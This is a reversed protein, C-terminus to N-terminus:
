QVLTFEKLTDKWLILFCEYILLAFLRELQIKHLREVIILIVKKNRHRLSIGLFDEMDHVIIHVYPVFIIAYIVIARKVKSM